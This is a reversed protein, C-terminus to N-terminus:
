RMEFIRLRYWRSGVQHDPITVVVEGGASEAEIPDRKEIQSGGPQKGCAVLEVRFKLAPDFNLPYVSSKDHGRDGPKSWTPTWTAGNVFTPANAGDHLGPKAEGHSTWYIGKPTVHLKSNGDVLAEVVVERVVASRQTSATAPRSTATTSQTTAAAVATTTTQGEAKDVLQSMHIEGARLDM